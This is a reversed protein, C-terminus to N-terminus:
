AKDPSALFDEIQQLKMLILGNQYEAFTIENHHLSVNTQFEKKDAICKKIVSTDPQM